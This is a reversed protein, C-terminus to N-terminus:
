VECEVSLPLPVAGTLEAKAAEFEVLAAEDSAEWLEEVHLRYEKRGAERAQQQLRKWTKYRHLIVEVAARYRAEPRAELEAM